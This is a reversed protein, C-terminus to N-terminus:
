LAMARQDCAPPQEWGKVRLLSRSGENPRGVPEPADCASRVSMARRDCASSSVPRHHRGAPGNASGQAPLRGRKRTATRPSMWPLRGASCAVDESVNPADLDVLDPILAVDAMAVRPRPFSEVHHQITADVDGLAVYVPRVDLRQRPRAGGVSGQPFGGLEDSSAQRKGRVHSWGNGIVLSWAEPRVAESLQGVERVAILWGFPVAQGHSVGTSRPAAIRRSRSRPVAREALCGTVEYEAVSM